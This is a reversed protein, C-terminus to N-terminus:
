PPITRTPRTEDHMFSNTPAGTGSRSSSTASSAKRARRSRRCRAARSGTPGIRSCRRAPKRASCRSSRRGHLQRARRAAHPLDMGGGADQVRPSGHPRAHAHDRHRARPLLQLQSKINNIWQGQEKLAPPIGNGSPGTGPFESTRPRSRAAVALLQRSLGEGSRGADARDERHARRGHRRATGEVKDSDVLGYGRVWLSYTANPLQPLVFRGEDDTVVIKILPTQLEDTQAIVWVGAEPGKTSKVVGSIMGEPMARPAAAQAVGLTLAAAALLAVAARALVSTSPDFNKSNM